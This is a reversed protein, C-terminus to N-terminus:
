PRSIPEHNKREMQESLADLRTALQAPNWEAPDAQDASFAAVPVGLEASLRREVEPLTGCWPRCSRNYHVLVGEVGYRRCLGCRSELGEELPSGNVTRCYARLMGDLDQYAFGLSPTLTDATVLLNREDLARCLADFAPWCPTGEFFVRRPKPGPSPPRRRLTEAAAWLKQATDPRCRGTVLLPMFDTLELNTLPPPDLRAVDLVQQWARSSENACRCAAAFRAEDWPRGTLKELQGILARVQGRLYALQRESVEPTDRYPFDLLLLPVNLMRAMQSYWQFMNSCINDCCLLLDPRPLGAAGGAAAAALGIRSYSCLDAPYGLEAAQQLLAASQGKRASAAAFSEPCYVELEFAAALELPFKTSMWAICPRRM